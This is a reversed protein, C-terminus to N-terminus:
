APARPRRRLSFRVLVVYLGVAGIAGVSGQARVDRAKQEVYEEESLGEEQEFPPVEVGRALAAQEYDDLFQGVPPLGLLTIVSTVVVLVLLVPALRVGLPHRRLVLVASAVAVIGTPALFALLVLWSTYGEVAVVYVLEGLEALAFGFGILLVLAGLRPLLV